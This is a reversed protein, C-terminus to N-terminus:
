YHYDDLAQELRKRHERMLDIADEIADKTHENKEGDLLIQYGYIKSEVGALKQILETEDDSM